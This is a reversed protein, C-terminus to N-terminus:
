RRMNEHAVIVKQNGVELINALLGAVQFKLLFAFDFDEKNRDFGAHVIERHLAM